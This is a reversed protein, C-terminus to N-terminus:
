AAPPVAADAVPWRTPDEGLVILEAVQLRCWPPVTIDGTAVAYVFDGWGVWEFDGVEAPDPRPPEDTVVRYVPCLESGVAGEGVPPRYRFAPLVPEAVAGGLGLEDRLARSVAADLSEGPAPYGHCSNTWVGPWTKKAHGRMTLLLRGDSRFVYCSFALRARAPLRRVGQEDVSELHEM